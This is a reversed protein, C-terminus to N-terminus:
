NNKLMKLSFWGLILIVFIMIGWLWISDKFFAEVEEVMTQNIQMEEALLVPSLNHPINTEFRNIDYNPVNANKNGYVLYYTAAQNFRANLQHANGKLSTQNYNLSENDGNKIILKLRKMVKNPFTFVGRDLSSLTSSSFTTYVYKWESNNKISDTAFQLTIPRYYDFQDSVNFKLYSIPLARELEIFVETQNLQDNEEITHSLVVPAVYKGEEVVIKKISANTLKPDVQTPIFLRFYTYDVKKFDLALFYYFTFENEISLIRGDEVVTFWEKQDQSAELKVHWDFNSKNFKLDIHNIESPTLIKFTYYYGAKNKVQNMLEFEVAKSSIEDTLIKFIYPAEITDGGTKIGMLRLDSFDRNVKAYVDTPIDLRHWQEEVNEIKRQYAYDRHQQAV